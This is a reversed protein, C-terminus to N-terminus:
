ELNTEKADKNDEDKYSATLRVQKAVRIIDKLQSYKFLRDRFM